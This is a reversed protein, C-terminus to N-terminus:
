QASRPDRPSTAHAPDSGDSTDANRSYAHKACFYSGSDEDRLSSMALRVSGQGTDRSIRVRSRVSPGYYTTAGDNNIGAVFELAQGPRQRIWFMGYTGFNFGSARCLLRLSGGPPQLHGGSELLTVAARLGAPFPSVPVPFAGSNVWVWAGPKIKPIKPHAPDALSGPLAQLEHCRDLAITAVGSVRRRHPAPDPDGPVGPLARHRQGHAAEPVLIGGTIGTGFTDITIPTSTRTSGITGVGASGPGTARPRERTGEPGERGGGPGRLARGAAGKPGRPRSGAARQGRPRRRIRAAAGLLSQALLTQSLPALAPDTSPSPVVPSVEPCEQPRRPSHCSAPDSGDSTDANRSYAHKACFYSGSDEDRLSSMALTVSSQGNDRSITFRGQFSPAYFTYSGGSNISAIYELAQGPRQRYWGM